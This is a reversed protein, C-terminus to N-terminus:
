NAPLITIPLEYAATKNGAKDTATLKATFKGPRSMFVPYRMGFMGEKEEVKQVSKDDQNHVIPKALTPTGKEDLLQFELVVNPQKTKPDRQFSAINCQIFITQGVLGTTPASIEGRLDYTAMVGVIGFEKKGVEFKMTLTDKSKTKGDEVTVKCTYNGANQDLGIIVYARGPISNGRLQIKETLEKPDQKFISKGASDVVEMAMRYKVDGDPEISLGTIDYGIFLIDGPLLKASTRTPGLEGVTMRVNTLKLEGGQSPAVSLAAALALSYLM